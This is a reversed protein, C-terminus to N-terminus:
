GWRKDLTNRAFYVLLAIMTLYWMIKMAWYISAIFMGDLLHNSNPYANAFHHYCATSLLSAIFLFITLGIHESKEWFYLLIQIIDM